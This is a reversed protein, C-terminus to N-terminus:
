AGNNRRLITKPEEPYTISEIADNFRSHCFPPPFFHSQRVRTRPSFGFTRSWVRKYTPFRFDHEFAFSHLASSFQTDLIVRNKKHIRLFSRDTSAHGSTMIFVTLFFFFVNHLSKETGRGVFPQM